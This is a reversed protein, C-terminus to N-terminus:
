LSCNEVTLGPGRGTRGLIELAAPLTARLRDVRATVAAPDAFSRGEELVWRFWNDLGFVIGSAALFVVLDRFGRPPAPGRTSRYAALRESWWDADVAAATMWSGLLRALDTAPTDTTAAHFDIIGSVREPEDAAFLVHAAWIDRVVSQRPIPRPELTAIERAIREGGADRLTADAAVLRALMEAGLPSDSAAAAPREAIADWPRALWARAQEIRRAIGPSPGAAPPNEPMRAAAAHVRALLAVAAAVQGDTPEFAPEGPLFRQMEWPRGAEDLVFSEGSAADRLDPVEAVGCSRLHRMVAHVFRARGPTTGAAFAKLVHDGDDAKVLYLPSGSFGARPLPEIRCAGAAFWQRGLPQPAPTLVPPRPLVPM